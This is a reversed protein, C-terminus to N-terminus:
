LFNLNTTSKAVSRTTPAKGVEVVSTSTVNAIATKIAEFLDQERRWFTGNAGDYISWDGTPPTKPVASQFSSTVDSMSTNGWGYIPLWCTKTECGPISNVPKLEGGVPVRRVQAKKMKVFLKAEELTPLRGGRSKAYSRAGEWTM